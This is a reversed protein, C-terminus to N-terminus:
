VCMLFKYLGGRALYKDVRYLKSTNLSKGLLKKFAIKKECIKINQPLKNYLM